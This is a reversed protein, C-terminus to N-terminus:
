PIATAVVELVIYLVTIGLPLFLLTNIWAGLYSMTFFIGEVFFLVTDVVSVGGPPVTIQTVNGLLPDGILAFLIGLAIYFAFITLIIGANNQLAM